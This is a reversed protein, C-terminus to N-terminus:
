RKQKQLLYTVFESILILNCIGKTHNIILSLQDHKLEALPIAFM